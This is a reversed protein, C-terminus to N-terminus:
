STTPRVEDPTPRPGIEAEAYVRYLRSNGRNPYPESVELLEFTEGLLASASRLEDLTGTLRIKM